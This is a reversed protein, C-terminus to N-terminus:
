WFLALWQVLNQYLKMWRGNRAVKKGFVGVVKQFNCSAAESFNQLQNKNKGQEVCELKNEMM